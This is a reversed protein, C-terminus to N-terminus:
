VQLALKKEDPEKFLNKSKGRVGMNESRENHGFNGKFSWGAGALQAAAPAIGQAAHQESVADGRVIAACFKDITASHSGAAGARNLNRTFNGRWVEPFFAPQAKGRMLVPGAGQPKGTLALYYAVHRNDFIGAEPSLM